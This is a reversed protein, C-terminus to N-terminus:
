RRVVRSTPTGFEVVVVYATLGSSNSRETQLEKAAVRSRVRWGKGQLIGSVELRIKNQFLNDDNGLWWDFGTGKRARELVTYGTLARMLLIALGYAGQETAEELDNWYRRMAETVPASWDTAFTATFTGEVALWVGSAHGQNELCVAAAQAMSASCEPPIHPFSDRLSDLRIQRLTEPIPEPM